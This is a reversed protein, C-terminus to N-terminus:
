GTVDGPDKGAKSRLSKRQVLTSQKFTPRHKAQAFAEVNSGLIGLAAQELGSKPMREM